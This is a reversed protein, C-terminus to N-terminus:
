RTSKNRNNVKDLLHANLRFPVVGKRTKYVITWKYVFFTHGCVGKIIRVTITWCRGCCGGRRHKKHHRDYDCCRGEHDCDKCNKCEENKRCGRCESCNTDCKCERCICDECCCEIKVKEKEKKDEQAFITVCCASFVLVCALVIKKM